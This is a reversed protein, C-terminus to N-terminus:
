ELVAYLSFLVLYSVSYYSFLLNSPSGSSEAPSSSDQTHWLVSLLDLWRGPRRQRGTIRWTALAWCRGMAAEDEGRARIMESMKQKRGFKRRLKIREFSFLFNSVTHQFQRRDTKKWVRKCSLGLNRFYERAALSSWDHGYRPPMSAPSHTMKRGKKEEKKTKKLNLGVM